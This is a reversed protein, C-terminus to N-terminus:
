DILQVNTTYGSPVPLAELDHRVGRRQFYRGARARIVVERGDVRVEFSRVRSGLAERVQREVRRKLAADAAPDTRPEITVRDRPDTARRDRTPTPFFRGFLGSPRRTTPIPKPEPTTRRASERGHPPPGGAFDGPEDPISELSIPPTSGTIAGRPEALPLATRGNGDVPAPMEAPGVLTPLGDPAPSLSPVPGVPTPTTRGNRLAPRPRAFGPVVLVPRNGPLPSGEIPKALEAPPAAIPGALVPPTLPPPAQGASSAGSAAALSLWALSAVFRRM